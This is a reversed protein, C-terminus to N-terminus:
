NPGPPGQGKLLTQKADIEESKRVRDKLKGAESLIKEGKESNRRWEGRLGLGKKKKEM